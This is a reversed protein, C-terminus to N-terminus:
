DAHHREVKTEPTEIPAIRQFLLMGVGALTLIVAIKMFVASGLGTLAAVQAPGITGGSVSAQVSGAIAMFIGILLLKMEVTRSRTLIVIIALILFISSVTTTMGILATDRGDMVDDGRTPRSDHACTSDYSSWTLIALLVGIVAEVAVREQGPTEGLVVGIRLQRTEDVV